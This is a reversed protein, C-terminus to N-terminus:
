RTLRIRPGQTTLEPNAAGSGDGQQRFRIFRDNMDRYAKVLDHHSSEIEAFQGRAKDALEQEEKLRKEMDSVRQDARRDAEKAIKSLAEIQENKDQLQQFLSDYKQSLENHSEILAMLQSRSAAEPDEAESLRSAVLVEEYNRETLQLRRSLNDMESNVVGENRRLEDIRANLKAEITEASSREDEYMKTWKTLERQLTDNRVALDKWQDVRANDGAAEAARAVAALDVRSDSGEAKPSSVQSELETQRTRAEDREKEVEAIRAKLEKRDDDIERAHRIDPQAEDLRSQLETETQHLDDITKQLAEKQRRASDLETAHQEGTAQLKAELAAVEDKLDPPIPAPTAAAQENAAAELDAVKQQLAQLKEDQGGTAEKQEALEREREALREEAQRSKEQEKSLDQRLTDCKASLESLVQEIEASTTDEPPPPTSTRLDVISKELFEARTIMASLLAESLIHREDTSKHQIPADAPLFGHQVLEVMAMLHLPGYRQDDPLEVVWDMNLAPVEPAPQWLRQDSSLQDDPSIRGEAAWEKLEDEAVPGFIDGDSKKLYWEM